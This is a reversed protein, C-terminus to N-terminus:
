RHIMSPSALMSLTELDAVEKDLKRRLKAWRAFQDQSSTAQLDAKTQLVQKRLDKQKKHLASPAVSSRLWNVQIHAGVNLRSVSVAYEVRVISTIRQKGVFSVAETLMVILAMQALLLMAVLPFSANGQRCVALVGASYDLEFMAALCVLLVYQISQGFQITRSGDLTARQSLKGSERKESPHIERPSAAYAQSGDFLRAVPCQDLLM